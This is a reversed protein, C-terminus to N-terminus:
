KGLVRISKTSIQKGISHYYSLLLFMAIVALIRRIMGGQKAWQILRTTLEQKKEETMGHDDAMELLLYSLGAIMAATAYLELHANDGTGPVPKGSTSAPTSSNSNNITVNNNIITNNHNSDNNNGNNPKAPKDPQVPPNPVDAEEQKWGAYLIIDTNQVSRGATRGSIGAHFRSGMHNRENEEVTATFDWLNESDIEEGTYWGIFDYGKRIPANVPMVTGGYRIVQAEPPTGEGGNLNFSITYIDRDYYLKLVLSGDEAIIGAAKRSPHETNETLGIYTRAEAAAETGVAGTYPVIDVLIYGDGTVDQWYHEVIYSRDTDAIWGAYFTTNGTLEVEEGPRKVTGSGSGQHWGDFTYGIRSVAPALTFVPNQYTIGNHVNVYRNKTESVPTSSGGNSDYSIMVDQQYIGYYDTDESLTLESAEPITGNYGTVDTDWGVAQWGPLVNLEPTIIAGETENNYITATKAMKQGSTGSYFDATITKKYIAYLTVNETEIELTDLGETADPDTNWGIFDWGEKAAKVAHEADPSLDLTSNKEAFNSTITVDNGGNTAYDYTITVGDGLYLGKQPTNQYLVSYGDVDSSFYQVYQRLNLYDADPTSVAFPTDTITVNDKQYTVGIDAGPELPASIYANTNYICLNSKQSNATNDCIVPHGSFKSIHSDIEYAFVGGGTGATNGSVIGGKMIFDTNTFIGGGIGATNDLISGANMEMLSYYTITGEGSGSLYVGGGYNSAQNHSITGGNMIFSAGHMVAVGGGHRATNNSIAGANMIFKGRLCSVGGGYGTGDRDELIRNQTIRGGNMEFTGNELLIGCTSNNSIDGDNMEFESNSSFIYIGSGKEHNSIVGGNMTFIGANYVGGGLGDGRETTHVSNQTITGKTLQFNGDNYVGAGNYACNQFIIGGYMVFSGSNYIGGGRSGYYYTVTNDFISGGNMQLIGGADIHVGGGGHNYTGSNVTNGSIVGGQIQVMSGTTVYIGGGGSTNSNGTITGGYFYLDGQNMYIGSKTGGTITGSRGCDCICLVTYEEISIVSSITSGVYQLTHGNLCLNVIGSIEMTSSLTIDESLYYNGEALSGGTFAQTLATFAVQEGASISCDTSVSHQHISDEQAEVSFTDETLIEEAVDLTEEKYETHEESSVTEEMGIDNAKEAGKDESLSDATESQHGSPNLGDESGAEQEDEIDAYNSDQEVDYSESSTNPNSEEIWEDSNEDLQQYEEANEAAWLISTNMQGAALISCCLLGALIRHRLKRLAEQKM